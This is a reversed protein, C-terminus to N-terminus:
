NPLIRKIVRGHAIDLRNMDKADDLRCSGAFLPGNRFVLRADLNGSFAIGLQMM